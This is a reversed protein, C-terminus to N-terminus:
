NKHATFTIDQLIPVSKKTSYNVHEFNIHIHSVKQYRGVIRKEERTCAVAGPQKEVEESKNCIPHRGVCRKMGNSETRGFLVLWVGM